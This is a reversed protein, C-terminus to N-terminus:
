APVAQAEAMPGMAAARAEAAERTAFRAAHKRSPSWEVARVLEKLPGVWYDNTNKFEPHSKVLKIIFM